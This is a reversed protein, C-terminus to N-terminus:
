LDNQKVQHQDTHDDKHHCLQEGGRMCILQHVAVDHGVKFTLLYRGEHDILIIQQGHLQLVLCLHRILQLAQGNETVIQAVQDQLLLARADNLGVIIFGLGHVGPPDAHQGIQDDDHQKDRQPEVDHVLCDATLAALHVGEALCTDLGRLRILLIPHQELIHCTGILLFCLQFLHHFVELIGM